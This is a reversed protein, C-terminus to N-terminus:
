EPKEFKLWCKEFINKRGCHSCLRPGKDFNVVVLIDGDEEQTASADTVVVVVVVVMDLQWLQTSPSFLVSYLLGLHLQCLYVRSYSFSLSPVNDGGLIQGCIQAVLSLDLGCLFKAVGLDDHYGKLM